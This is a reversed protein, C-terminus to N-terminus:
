TLILIINYWLSSRAYQEWQPAAATADVATTAEFPAAFSMAGLGVIALFVTKIFHM